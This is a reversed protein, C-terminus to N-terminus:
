IFPTALSEHTAKAKEAKAKLAHNLNIFFRALAGRIREGSEKLETPRPHKQTENGNYTKREFKALRAANRALAFTLRQDDILAHPHRDSYLWVACIEVLVDLAQVDSHALRGFIRQGAKAEKRGAEDIWQQVFHIAATIAPHDPHESFFGQVEKLEDAYEKRSIAIGEVHGYRYKRLEHGPCIPSLGRRNKNCGKVGCKLHKLKDSIQMMTSLKTM